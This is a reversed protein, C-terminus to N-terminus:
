RRPDRRRRPPSRRDEVGSVPTALRDVCTIACHSPPSSPRTGQAPRAPNGPGAPRSHQHADVVEARDLHDPPQPLRERGAPPATTAILEFEVVQWGPERQLEDLGAQGAVLRHGPPRRRLRSASPTGPSSSRWRGSSGGGRSRRRVPDAGTDAEVRDRGPHDLRRQDGLPAGVRGDAGSSSIYGIGIPRAPRGSSIAAAM